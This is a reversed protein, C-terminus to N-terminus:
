FCTPISDLSCFQNIIFGFCSKKKSSFYQFLSACLIYILLVYLVQPWTERETVSAYNHFLEIEILLTLIVLISNDVYHAHNFHSLSGLESASGTTHAFSSHMVRLGMKCTSFCFFPNFIEQCALTWAPVPSVHCIGIWNRSWKSAIFLYLLLSGHVGLSINRICFVTKRVDHCTAIENRFCLHLKKPRQSM